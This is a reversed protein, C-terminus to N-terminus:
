HLTQLFLHDLQVWDHSNAISREVGRLIIPGKFQKKLDNRRKKYRKLADKYTLGDTIFVASLEELRDENM